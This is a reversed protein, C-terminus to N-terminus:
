GIPSRNGFLASGLRIFSADYKLAVLFDSSMGMSLEKLQFQEALNKMAQFFKSTDENQPPICMFGIIDLNTDKVLEQYFDEVQAFAIGSKQPEDGINIQIFYKCKKNLHKETRDLIRALKLNDLSHIYHFLQVAKKAKNSQLNGVLHLKVNPYQQLLSPWKTEAEQVKNEGFHIHGIDLLPKFYDSTFTKTIAIIHHHKQPFVQQIKKKVNDINNLVPALM